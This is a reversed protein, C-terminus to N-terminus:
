ALFPILTGTHTHTHHPGEIAPGETIRQLQAMQYDDGRKKRKKLSVLAM